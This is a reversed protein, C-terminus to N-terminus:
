VRIGSCSPPRTRGEATASGAATPASRRSTAGGVGPVPLPQALRKVTVDVARHRIRGDRQQGRVRGRADARAGGHEGGGAPARHGAGAHDAGLVHGDAGGQLLPEDGVGVGGERGVRGRDVGQVGRVGREQRHGGLYRADDELEVASPASGARRVATM